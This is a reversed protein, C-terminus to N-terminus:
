ASAAMGIIFAIYLKVGGLVLAAWARSPRESVHQVWIIFGALPLFLSLMVEGTTIKFEGKRAMPFGCKRCNKVQPHNSKKCKPCFIIKGAPPAPKRKPRDPTRQQPVKPQVPPRRPPEVQTRAPLPPKKGDMFDILEQCDVARNQANKELCRLIVSRFPEGIKEVNSPIGGNLINGMVQGRTQGATISGFPASGMFVQYLIVGLSWLDVNPAIKGAIGYKDPHFQEPAMYELTGITVSASGSDEGLEKSIGFDAIKPVWLGNEHTMLINQPKMDRHVVQRDQLYKLGLLIQRIVDRLTDESPFRKLFDFFEGANAYELAAVRTQTRMGLSDVDDFVFKDLYRILNPHNYKEARTIEGLLSYKAALEDTFFKLAVTNGTTIDFAKFVKSFGGKGINDKEPDFQFRGYFEEKTM